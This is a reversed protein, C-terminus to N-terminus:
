KLYQKIQCQCIDRGGPDHPYKDQLYINIKNKDKSMYLIDQPTTSAIYLGDQCIIKYECTQTNHNEKMMVNPNETTAYFGVHQLIADTTWNSHISQSDIYVGM